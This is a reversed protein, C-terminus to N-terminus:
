RALWFQVWCFIIEPFEESLHPGILDLEFVEINRVWRFDRGPGHDDDIVIDFKM